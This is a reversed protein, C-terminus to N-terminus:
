MAGIFKNIFKVKDLVVMILWSILIGLVILILTDLKFRYYLNLYKLMAILLFLIVNHILYIGYSYKAISICFKKFLNKLQIPISTLVKKEEVNRFLLFIGIIEFAMLISYGEFNYITNNTSLFYSFILQLMAASIILIIPVYLNTFIKRKTYRLYYGLVVLGIPSTFYTLKIPFEMNLTFDFLCTILWFVLFYEVEKLDSHLLWKNFVPMILYVGLIMWFYWYPTFVSKASFTDFLFTLITEISFSNILHIFSPCLFEILILLFTLILGWFVFPLVIRPIRKGLFSKIDWVRGLLLAGSLMLFLDVGIRFFNDIFAGILWNLSHIPAYPGICIYQTRSFVHIIIVSIIALTRLADFYFIRKKGARTKM